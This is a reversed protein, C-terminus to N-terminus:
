GAEFKVSSVEGRDPLQETSGPSVTGVPDSSCDHTGYLSADYASDNRVSVASFPNALPVCADGIPVPVKFGEGKPDYLTLTGTNLPQKM